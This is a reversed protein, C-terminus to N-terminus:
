LILMADGFSFFRYRLQVALNYASLLRERGVLASVMMLLTSRPLHFNTVLADVAQFRYGPYIFIETWGSGAQVIGNEGAATELCRTTTTGVAIVRGGRLKTENIVRATEKPIEYYEAHMRHNTVEDVKVPRFTGLGVHLLVPVIPIGRDKIKQLLEPTFHLGATPAAVSGPERAYITQYRGPDDPQKKIYPPLPMVGLRDLVQEFMGQYHFKILRCGDDVVAEVSGTLDDGFRITTGVPVRRGPRVLTEWTQESRRTLLLVEIVTGTDEKKGWLRAPIVKTDNIVLVDQPTIYETIDKFLRHELGDGDKYLVMLRSEDRVPAPEQAILDEPLYYEFEAVRM